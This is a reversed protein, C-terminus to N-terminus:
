FTVKAHIDAIKQPANQEKRPIWKNGRLEITDMLMFRIRAPYQKNQAMKGMKKFYINIYTEAKPIDIDKGVTNLLSCLIEIDEEHPMPKKLILQICEHIVNMGLLKKKFLEGVFRVNGLNRKKIKAQRLEEWDEDLGEKGSSEDSEDASRKGSDGRQANEERHKRLEERELREQEENIEGKDAEQSGEGKQKERGSVSKDFQKQCLGLLVNRFTEEQQDSPTPTTIKWKPCKEYLKYCLNAYMNSFNPESIAKDFVLQIIEAKLDSGNADKLQKVLAASLSDFHELTLKNLVRNIAFTLLYGCM